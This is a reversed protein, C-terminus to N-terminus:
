DSTDKPPSPLDAGPEEDGPDEGPEEDDSDDAVAAEPEEFPEPETVPEPEEVAEEDILEETVGDDEVGDDESDVDDPVETTEDVSQVGLDPVDLDSDDFEFEDATRHAMWTVVLASVVGFLSLWGFTLLGFAWWTVEVAGLRGLDGGSALAFLALTIGTAFAATLAALVADQGDAGQIEVRKACDRGSLIGVVAPIILLVAWLGGGVSEPIAGLLPLPPLDGGVNGFVSISVDGVNATAGTLVAVAGIVLNPLYLLSLVTLGLVGVFGGGRSLLDGVTTWSILLAVLVAIAGAALLTAIAGAAPRVAASAWPPISLAFTQWQAIAVGCVAAVLHIGAVWGFASLTNPSSLPIAASADAVVALSIATVTLPGAVAAGLLRLTTDRSDTLQSASACRRAVVWMMVATPLLPLVGLQVGDITAPVQHIALWTTAIAGFTGTLDSSASVLTVVVVASILLITMGSPRFAVTLLTRAQDSDPAPARLSTRGRAPEPRTRDILFSM